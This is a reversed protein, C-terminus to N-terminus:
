NCGLFSRTLPDNNPFCNGSPLRLPAYRSLGPDYLGTELFERLDEIEAESLGLPVFEAALQGTPVYTNEPIALNKYRLVEAISGFSAGHGYFPSDSLNYLQPVKFKFMDEPRNTFGGRGKNGVSNFDVAAADGRQYLDKMGLAYFEMANLAPGNHCQYCRAKGFFLIAGRKQAENMAGHEGKLWRQFPAMTAMLTREYAAIALGVHLVNIRSEAPVDPFAANFLAVYDPHTKVLSGEVQLRHVDMAAIAQTEVGEFGLHNRDKPTGATWLAETDTNHGFAGFQGNWLMNAQFAVHLTSPSRVDQVDLDSDLVYDPHRVRGQGKHGFGLGGEGIGQPVGAQFGAPAHHCSACSYFQLSISKRPKLGLGTEHFLLKGLEVKAANLPNRPDQPILAYQTPEPLLYYDKGQGASALELKELLSQDLSNQSEVGADDQCSTLLIGTLLLLALFHFTSSFTKQM